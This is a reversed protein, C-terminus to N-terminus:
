GSTADARHHAFLEKVVVDAPRPKPGLRQKIQAQYALTNMRGDLVMPAIM